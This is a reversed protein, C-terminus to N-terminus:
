GTEEERARRLARVQRREARLEVALRGVAAIFLGVGFYIPFHGFTFGFAFAGAALGALMAAYSASPVARPAREPAPGGRRFSDGRSAAALALALALILGAAALFSGGEIKNGRTWIINTVGLALLLCAWVLPAWSGGRM